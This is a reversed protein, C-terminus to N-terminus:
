GPFLEAGVIGVLIPALLNLGMYDRTRRFPRDVSHDSHRINPTPIIVFICIRGNQIGVFFLTVIWSSMLQHRHNQYSSISRRNLSTSVELIDKSEMYLPIPTVIHFSGMIVWVNRPALSNVNTVHSHCTFPLNIVIVFSM